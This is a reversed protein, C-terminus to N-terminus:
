CEFGARLRSDSMDMSPYLGARDFQFRDFHMTPDHPENCRECYDLTGAGSRGPEVRQVIANGSHM